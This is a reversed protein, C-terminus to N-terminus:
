FVLINRVLINRDYVFVGTMFMINENLDTHSAFTWYCTVIIFFLVEFSFPCVSLAFWPVPSGQYTLCVTKDSPQELQVQEMEIYYLVIYDIYYLIDLTKRDTNFNKDYPADTHRCHQLVSPHSNSNPFVIGVFGASQDASKIFQFIRWEVKKGENWKNTSM